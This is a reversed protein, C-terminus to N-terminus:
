RREVVNRGLDALRDASLTGRLLVYAGREPLFLLVRSEAPAGAAGTGQGTGADTAALLQPSSPAAAAAAEPRAGAARAPPARRRDAAVGTVVIDSLALAQERWSVLEVTSGDGLQQRVRVAGAMGIVPRYAASPEGAGDIVLVPVGGPATAGEAPVWGEAETALRVGWELLAEASRGDPPAGAAFPAARPSQSGIDARLQLAGAPAPPAAVVTRQEQSPRTVAGTAAAVSELRIAPEGLPRDAAVAPARAADAAVAAAAAAAPAAAAGAPPPAAPAPSPAAAAVAPPPPAAAVAGPEAPTPVGAPQMVGSAQEAGTAREADTAQMFATGGPSLLSSGAWWGAGLALLVSAAWASPVVWRHRRRPQGAPRAVEEFPPVEFANAADALVLGAATRLAREEDLRARCDACADLHAVVDAASAGAPLERAHELATLAGDLYAHLVGDTVHPM